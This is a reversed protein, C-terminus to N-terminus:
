SILARRRRRAEASPSCASSSTASQEGTTSASSSGESSSSTGTAAAAIDLDDLTKRALGLQPGPFVEFVVFQTVLFTDGLIYIDENPGIGADLPQFGSFCIGDEIEAYTIYSPDIYASYTGYNFTLQPLTTSCNYAYIGNADYYDQAGEVQSFYNDLVGSPLYSLTTGTDMIVQIEREYQVGNIIYGQLAVQWYSNNTTVNQYTIDGLYKNSDIFGFDYTGSANRRLDATLVALELDKIVASMFTAVEGAKPEVQSGTPFALGMIGDSESTVFNDSIETAVEVTQFESFIGGCGVTDTYVIGSAFGSGYEIDFTSGNVLSSTNSFQPNYLNHGVTDNTPLASTFVWLDASGTDPTLYLVQGGVTVPVTYYADNDNPVNFVEGELTGALVTSMQKGHKNYGHSIHHKLTAGITGTKKEHKVSASKKSPVNRTAIANSRVATRPTNKWPVAEVTALVALVTPLQYLFHM